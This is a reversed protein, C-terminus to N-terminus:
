WWRLGIMLVQIKELLGGTPRAKIGRGDNEFVNCHAVPMKLTCLDHKVGRNLIEWKRRM